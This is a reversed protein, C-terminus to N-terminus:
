TGTVVSPLCCATPAVAFNGVSSDATYELMKLFKMIIWQPNMLKWGEYLVVENNALASGNIIRVFYEADGSGSRRRVGAGVVM